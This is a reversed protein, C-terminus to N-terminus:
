KLIYYKGRYVLLPRGDMQIIQSAYKVDSLTKTKKNNLSFEVVEFSQRGENNTQNQIFYLQKEDLNCILNGLDNKESQYIVHENDFDLSDLPINHIKSGPNTHDLSFIGMYLKKHFCLEIKKNISEVKFLPKIQKKQRDYLLVGALGKQNLDTYLIRRDDLMVVQPIFYPNIKNFLKIDFKLLPGDINKFHITQDKTTFFSAWTDRMHLRPSIGMGLKQPLTGGFNLAIINKDANFSYNYHYDHDQSALLRKREPSSIISYNTGMRGKIVEKVSYNTSLILSGSRRQYYTYKGDKSIFRLNEISQQTSLVPLKSKASILLSLSIPIIIKNWDM